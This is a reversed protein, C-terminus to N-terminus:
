MQPSETWRDRICMKFTQGFSASTLYSTGYTANDSLLKEDYFYGVAEGPLDIGTREM